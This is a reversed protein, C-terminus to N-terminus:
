TVNGRPPHLDTVADIGGRDSITENVKLLLIRRVCISEDTRRHRHGPYRIGGAILCKHVIDKSANGTAMTLVDDPGFPSIVNDFERADGGSKLFRHISGRCQIDTAFFGVGTRRTNRSMAVYPAVFCRSLSFQAPVDASDFAPPVGSAVVAEDLVESVEVGGPWDGGDVQMVVVVAEASLLERVGVGGGDIESEERGDARVGFDTLEQGDRGLRMGTEKVDGEAEKVGLDLDSLGGDFQQFADPFM